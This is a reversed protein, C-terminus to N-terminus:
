ELGGIISKIHHDWIHNLSFVFACCLMCILSCIYLIMFILWYWITTYCRQCWVTSKCNIVSVCSCSAVSWCCCCCIEVMMTMPSSDLYCRYIWPSRTYIHTHECTYTLKGISTLAISQFYMGIYIRSIHKLHPNSTWWRASRAFITREISSLICTNMYHRPSHFFPM